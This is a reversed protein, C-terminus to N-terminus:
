RNSDLYVYSKFIILDLKSQNVKNIVRKGGLFDCLEKPTSVPSINRLSSSSGFSVGSM